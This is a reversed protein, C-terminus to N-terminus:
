IRDEYGIFYALPIFEELSSSRPQFIYQLSFHLISFSFNHIVVFM